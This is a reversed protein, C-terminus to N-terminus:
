FMIYVTDSYNLISNAVILDTLTIEWDSYFQQEEKSPLYFNVISYDSAETLEAISDLITDAYNENFNNAILKRIDESDFVIVNLPKLM